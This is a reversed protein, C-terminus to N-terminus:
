KKAAKIAFVYRTVAEKQPPTLKAKYSMDQLITMWRYDDYAYINEAGHCSKCASVAYLVYGEKLQPLTTEKYQPYQTQIATLEEEGPDYVGDAPKPPKVVAVSPTTATTTTAVTTTNVSNASTTISTTSKKSTHCAYIVLASFSFLALKIKM